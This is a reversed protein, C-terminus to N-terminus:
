REQEPGLHARIRQAVNKRINMYFLSYDVNHYDKGWTQWGFSESLDTHLLGGKCRATLLKRKPTPVEDDGKKFRVAGLHDKRASKKGDTRWTVPNVCVLTTGDAVEPGSPYWVRPEAFREPPDGDEVTNYTILCGTQEPTECVPIGELARTLTDKPIPTGIVYAAVLRERLTDSGFEAGEAFFESLLQVAHRSGQSHSAIIIPREGGWNELYAQFAARVDEYALALAADGDTRDETIFSGLTAQRYRPAFVRAMANFASAQNRLVAEDTLENADDDGLPQNWHEDDYYTTPHIFFVDVAAKQQGDSEGEPTVDAEDRRGPLAAWSGPEDYDPAAPAAMEDFPEDPILAARVMPRCSAVLAALGVLAWLILFARRASEHSM